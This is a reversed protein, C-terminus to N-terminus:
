RRIVRTRPSLAPTLSIRTACRAVIPQSRELFRVIWRARAILSARLRDRRSARRAGPPTASTSRRVLRRARSAFWLAASM